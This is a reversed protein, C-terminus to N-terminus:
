DTHVAKVKDVAMRVTMYSFLSAIMLPFIASHRDTMEMVIVWATFPARVIASLFAAMGVMVFLSHNPYATLVAIKSGIAAGLTLAPALFGGACGSVHSVITGLFRGAILSWSAAEGRFLMAEIQATGGGITGPNVFLALAAMCLGTVAAFQLRAHFYNPLLRKWDVKLMWHFPVAFLGCVIGVGIAWPVSSIPVDGVKPFGFYLYKGSLWQSVMGGMIAASIVVTRFKHFHVKALEELAFVIGALPANFAAAVGAAGGAIVWSRQEEHPWLRHFQRGVVYFLCAAMQVMPGERGLSGAGLVGLLSSAAVVLAVKLSLQSEIEQKQTVPNLAVAQIVAPVGTGGAAPAFRVVLWSALVFCVPSTVFLIRPDRHFVSNVLGIGAGFAGSYLVAVLGVVAAAAWYPVGQLYPRVEVESRLIRRVEPSGLKRWLTRVRALMGVIRM